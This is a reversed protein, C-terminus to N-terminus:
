ACEPLRLGGRACSEANRALTVAHGDLAQSAKDGRQREDREDWAARRRRERLTLSCRPRAGLGPRLVGRVGGDRPPPLPADLVPPDGLLPVGRPPAPPARLDCSCFTTSGRALGESSDGLGGRPCSAM